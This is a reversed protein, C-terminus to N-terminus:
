WSLVRFRVFVVLVMYPRTEIGARLFFCGDQSLSLRLGGGKFFLALDLACRLSIRMTDRLPPAQGRGIRIISVACVPSRM